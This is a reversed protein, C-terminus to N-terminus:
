KIFDIVQLHSQRPGSPGLASTTPMSQLPGNASMFDSKNYFNFKTNAGAKSQTMKCAKKQPLALFIFPM